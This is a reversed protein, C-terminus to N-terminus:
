SLYGICTAVLGLIVVVISILIAVQAWRETREYNALAYWSFFAAAMGIKMSVVGYVRWADSYSQSLGDLFDGPYRGREYPLFVRGIYLNIVAVTLFILPLAFGLLFVIHGADKLHDSTASEADNSHFMGSYRSM